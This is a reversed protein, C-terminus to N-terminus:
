FWEGVLVASKLCIRTSSPVTGSKVVVVLAETMSALRTWLWPVIFWGAQSLHWPPLEPKYTSHRDTVLWARPAQPFQRCSVRPPLQEKTGPSNWTKGHQNPSKRADSIDEYVPHLPSFWLLSLYTGFLKTSEWPTASPKKSSPDLVRVKEREKEKERGNERARERVMERM